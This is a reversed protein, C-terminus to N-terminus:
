TVWMPATVTVVHSNTTLWEIDAATMRRMQEFWGNACAVFLRQRAWVKYSYMPTASQGLTVLCPPCQFLKKHKIACAPYAEDFLVVQHQNRLYDKMDIELCGACNLELLADATRCLSRAFQTKGAGSPGALALFEYRGKLVSRERSFLEM